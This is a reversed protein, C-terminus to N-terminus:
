PEEEEDDAPRQRDHREDRVGKEPEERDREPDDPDCQLPEDLQHLREEEKRRPEEPRPVRAEM